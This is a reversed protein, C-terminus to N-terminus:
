LLQGLAEDILSRVGADALIYELSKQNKPNEILQSLLAIAENASTQRLYNVFRIELERSPGAKLTEILDNEFRQVTEQTGSLAKEILREEDKSDDNDFPENMASLLAVLATEDDGLVSVIAARLSRGSPRASLLRSLAELRRPPHRLLTREDNEVLARLAPHIRNQRAWLLWATTEIPALRIKATAELPLAEVSTILFQCEFRAGLLTRTALFPKLFQATKGDANEIIVAPANAIRAHLLSLNENSLEQAHLIPAQPSLQRCLTTKGCGEPGFVALDLGAKLATQALLAAEEHMM